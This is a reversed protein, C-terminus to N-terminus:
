FSALRHPEYRGDRRFDLVPPFPASADVEVIISGFATACTSGWTVTTGTFGSNIWITESGTSPTSYANDSGENWTPTTGTPPSMSNAATASNGVLGLVPNTTLAATTFAPAPTGTAAQNAQVASQRIANSGWRGLYAIRYVTVIAGTAADGTCDFTVTRATGSTLLKNAIFLYNTDASSNKLCSTVKTFTTEAVSETCTGAAVTGSAVVFVLLLDGVAPTFSATAYSTVNSTSTTSIAFTVSPPPPPGGGLIELAVISFPGSASGGTLGYSVAGASTQDQLDAVVVGYATGILAAQRSDFPTPTQPTAAPSSGAGWDFVGWVIASDAATPTLSVTKTATHQEASNGTGLSSRFVWVGFGSSGSNSIGNFVISVAGSGSSAATAAFVGSACRNADTGPNYAAKSSFSLGSATPTGITFSANEIGAIVVIVDNTLWSISSSSKSITPQTGTQGTSDWATQTFSILIPASV